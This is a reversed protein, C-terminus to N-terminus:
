WIAGGGMMGINRSGCGAAVHGIDTESGSACDHVEGMWSIRSSLSLSMYPDTAGDEKISLAMSQISCFCLAL